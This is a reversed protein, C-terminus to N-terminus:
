KYEKGGGTYMGEKVRLVVDAHVMLDECGRGSEQEGLGSWWDAGREWALARRM